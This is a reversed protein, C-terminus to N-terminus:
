AAAGLEEPPGTSPPIFWEVNEVLGLLECAMRLSRFVEAYHYLFAIRGSLVLWRYARESLYVREV